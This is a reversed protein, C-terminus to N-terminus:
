AFRAKIKLSPPNFASFLRWMITATKLPARFFSSLLLKNLELCFAKSVCGCARVCVWVCAPIPCPKWAIGQQSGSFFFSKSTETQKTKHKKQIREVKGPVSSSKRSFNVLCVLFLGGCSPFMPSFSPSFVPCSLSLSFSLVVSRSFYLPGYLLNITLSVHFSIFSSTLVFETGTTAGELKYDTLQYRADTAICM